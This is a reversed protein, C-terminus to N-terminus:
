FQGLVYIKIASIVPRIGVEFGLEPHSQPPQANSQPPPTTDGLELEKSPQPESSLYLSLKSVRLPTEPLALPALDAGVANGM